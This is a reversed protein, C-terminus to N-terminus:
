KVRFSIKLEVMDGSDLTFVVTATYSGKELGAAPRVTWSREDRAGASIRGGEERSLIFHEADKGSLSVREIVADALGPNDVRIGQAGPQAYGESVPAFAVGEFAPFAYAAQSVDSLEAGPAIAAAKIVAGEELSIPGAYKLSEGDPETGDTTYYIEAGEPASIEAKPATKYTGPAPSFVPAETKFRLTLTLNEDAESLTYSGDGGATLKGASTEAATIIYGERPKILCSGERSILLSGFATDETLGDFEAMASYDGAFHLKYYGYAISDEVEGGNTYVAAGNNYVQGANNYVTGGNAYVIGANNYVTGGNNYVLGANNYVLAGNNYVTGGNNYIVGGEEAYLTEGAESYLAGEARPEAPEALEPGETNEPAGPAAVAASPSETPDPSVAPEALATAPLLCLVLAAALAFAYLTNIKKM